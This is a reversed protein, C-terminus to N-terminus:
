RTRTIGARRMVGTLIRQQEAIEDHELSLRRMETARKRPDSILEVAALDREYRAVRESLGAVDDRVISRQFRTPGSATHHQTKALANQPTKM